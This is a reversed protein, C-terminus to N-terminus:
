KGIPSPDGRRVGGYYYDFNHSREYLVGEARCDSSLAATKNM